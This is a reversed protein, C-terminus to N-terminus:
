KHGRGDEPQSHAIVGRQALAHSGAAIFLAAVILGAGVAFTRMGTAIAEPSASLMNSTAADLAFV